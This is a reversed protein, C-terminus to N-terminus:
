QARQYIYPCCAFHANEESKLKIFQVYVTCVIITKGIIDTTEHFQYLNLAQFERNKTSQTGCHKAFIQSEPMCM